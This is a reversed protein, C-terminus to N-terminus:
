EKGDLDDKGDLQAETFEGADDTKPYVKAKAVWLAALLGLLLLPWEYRTLQAVAATAQDPLPNNSNFISRPGVIRAILYPLRCPPGGPVCTIVIDALVSLLWWAGLTVLVFMLPKRKNRKRLEREEILRKKRDDKSGKSKAPDVSAAVGASIGASRAPAATASAAPAKAVAARTEEHAETALVADLGTIEPEGTRTGEPSRVNNNM